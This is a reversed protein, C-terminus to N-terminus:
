QFHQASCGYSYTSFPSFSSFKITRTQCGNTCTTNQEKTEDANAYYSLNPLIARFILHKSFDLADPSRSLKRSSIAARMVYPPRCFTSLLENVETIHTIQRQGRKKALSIPRSLLFFANLLSFAVSERRRGVQRTGNAYAAKSIFNIANANWM